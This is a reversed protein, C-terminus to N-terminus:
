MKRRRVPKDGAWGGRGSGRPPRAEAVPQEELLSERYAREAASIDAAPVAEEPTEAREEAEFARIPSAEIITVDPVAQRLSLTLRHTGDSAELTSSWVFAYDLQLSLAALDKNWSGGLTLERDNGGLRLAYTHFNFWTEVGFHLRLDADNGVPKRYSIEMTPTLDELPGLDGSLFAGGLRIERPVPDKADLGVDPSNINKVALGIALVDAPFAQLGLDLSAASKSTGKRFPSRASTAETQRTREDPSFQHSLSKVTVGAFYRGLVRRGYSLAYADERYLGSVNFATWSVGVSGWRGLPSVASVANMGLSTDGDAGANLDLGVYPRAYMLSLERGQLRGLGAPNSYPADANDALATQAGGMGSARTGWGLDKFAASALAPAFCFVAILARRKM